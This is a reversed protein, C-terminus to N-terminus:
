QWKMEIWKKIINHFITNLWTLENITHLNQYTGCSWEVHSLNLPLFEIRRIGIVLFKLVQLQYKKYVYIACLYLGKYNWLYIQVNNIMGYTITVVNDFGFSSWSISSAGNKRSKRVLCSFSCRKDVHHQERKPTPLNQMSYFPQFKGVFHSRWIILHQLTEQVTLM